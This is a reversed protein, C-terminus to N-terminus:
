KTTQMAFSDRECENKQKIAISAQVAMLSTERTSKLVSNKFIMQMEKVKSMKFSSIMAAKSIVVQYARKRGGVGGDRVRRQNVAREGACLCMYMTM